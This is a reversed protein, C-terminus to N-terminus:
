EGVIPRDPVSDLGAELVADIYAEVDRRSWEGDIYSPHDLVDETPYRIESLVARAAEEVGVIFASAVAPALGTADVKVNDRIAAEIRKMMTSV